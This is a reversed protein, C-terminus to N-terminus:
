WPKFTEVPAPQELGDVPIHRGNIWNARPSVLFAIVDAVEEPSGLRGMPFGDRVYKDFVEPNEKRFEDWSNDPCIISGPSVCNVRIKRHVLNLALIETMYIQAAKSTGYQWKGALQQHWGSISSINVVAGGGRKEMHPVALRTTRAVQFVNGEFTAQWADEDDTMFDEGVAGYINNVLIDIGGLETACEDIFRTGDEPLCVDAQVTHVTAGLDRLEAAAAKLSETGRACLGLHCGEEALVRATALGIGKSGGTILAVKNTLKLDM